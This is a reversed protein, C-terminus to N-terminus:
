SLLIAIAEVLLGLTVACFIYKCMRKGFEQEEKYEVEKIQKDMLMNMRANRYNNHIANMLKEEDKREKERILEKMM